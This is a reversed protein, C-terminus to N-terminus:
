STSQGALLAIKVIVFEAPKLPAFAVIINVIGRDIDDQTTTTGDCKVQFAASPTSGQFAGQNFLSLMFKGVTTRMAVWLPEDNPEFVVWGLNFYLSQEIFLAMRRVPVYWWQQLSTNETVLTRAGFVVTGIGPFTRLCNVGKPNLTGQRADTM